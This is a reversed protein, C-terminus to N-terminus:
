QPPILQELLWKKSTLPSVSSITAHLQQKAKKDFPNLKLLKQMYYVINKYNEKHYGVVEKRVLYTKLSHLLSELADLEETEYYIQALLVKCSLMRLIDKPAVQVLLLQAKTYENQAYYLKALCEQRISAQSEIPIKEAYQAIFETVWQYAKMSISISVMNNFTFPSIVEQQILYGEKIGTQYLEFAKELYWQSGTNLKKITFNIALLYLERIEQQPFSMKNQQLLEMMNQFYHENNEAATLALYCNYYIAIAPIDLYNSTKVQHLVVELMRPQYDMQFVVLRSYLLCARRLKDAFYQIDLADSLEQLNLPITRQQQEATDYVITELQYQYRLGEWNSSVKDQLLRQTQNITLDVINSLQREQLDQLLLLAGEIPNKQLRQYQLFQEINSLTRFMIQRMKGDNYITNPYIFAWAAKKTLKQPSEKYKWFFHYFQIV